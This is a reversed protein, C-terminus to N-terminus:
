KVLVAVGEHLPQQSRSLTERGKELGAIIGTVRSLSFRTAYYKPDKAEDRIAAPIKQEYYKLRADLIQLPSMADQDPLPVARVAAPKWKKMNVQVGDECEVEPKSSLFPHLTGVAPRSETSLAM